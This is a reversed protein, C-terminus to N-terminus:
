FVSPEDFPDSVTELLTQISEMIGIVSAETAGVPSEGPLVQLQIEEIALDAGVPIVSGVFGVNWPLGPVPLGPVGRKDQPQFSFSMDSSMMSTDPLSDGSSILLHYTGRLTSHSKLDDIARRLAAGKNHYRDYCFIRGHITGTAEFHWMGRRSAQLSQDVEMMTVAALLFEKGKRYITYSYDASVADHFMLSRLSPWKLILESDILRDELGPFAEKMRPSYRIEGGGMILIDPPPFPEKWDDFNMTVEGPQQQEYLSIPCRSTNYIWIWRDHHEKMYEMLVQFHPAHEQEKGDYLITKDIDLSLILKRRRRELLSEIDKLIKMLGSAEGLPVPPCAEKLGAGSPADFQILDVECPNDAGHNQCGWAGSPSHEAADDSEEEDSETGLLPKKEEETGRVSGNSKRSKRKKGRELPYSIVGDIEGYSGPHKQQIFSSILVPIIQVLTRPAHTLESLAVSRYALGYGIANQPNVCFFSILGLLLALSHKM